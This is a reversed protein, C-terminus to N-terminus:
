YYLPLDLCFAKVQKKYEIFIDIFCNEIPCFLLTFAANVRDRSVYM